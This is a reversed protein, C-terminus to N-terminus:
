SIGFMGMQCVMEATDPDMGNVTAKAPVIDACSKVGYPELAASFLMGDPVDLSFGDGFQYGPPVGRVSGLAVGDNAGSVFRPDFAPDQGQAPQAPAPQAPAPQAPAPQSPAAQAPVSAPGPNAAAVTPAAAREAAPSLAVHLVTGELRVTLDSRRLLPVLRDLVIAAADDPAHLLLWLEPGHGNFEIGVDAEGDLDGATLSQQLPGPVQGEPASLSGFDTLQLGTVAGRVLRIREELAAARASAVAERGRPLSILTLVGIISVVAMLEILTFGRRHMM